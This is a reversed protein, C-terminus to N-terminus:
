RVTFFVRATGKSPSVVNMVYRGPTLKSGNMAEDLTTKNGTQIMIVIPQADPRANGREDAAFINVSPSWRARPPIRRSKREPPVSGRRRRVPRRGQGTSRCGARGRERPPVPPHQRAAAAVTLLGLSLLM